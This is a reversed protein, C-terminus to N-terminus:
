PARVPAVAADIRFESYRGGNTLVCVYTGVPLDNIPISASSLAAIACGDRGESAMGVAAIQAGLVPEVWRETATGARFWIDADVGRNVWWEAGIPKQEAIYSPRTARFFPMDPYPLLRKM